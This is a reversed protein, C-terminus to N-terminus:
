RVTSEKTRPFRHSKVCPFPVRRIRQLKRVVSPVGLGGRTNGDRGTDPTGLVFLLSPKRGEEGTICLTLRSVVPDAQSAKQEETRFIVRSVCPLAQWM